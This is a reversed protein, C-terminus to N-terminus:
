CSMYSWTPRPTSTQHVVAREPDGGPGCDASVEQGSSLPAGRGRLVYAAASDGFVARPRTASHLWHSAPGHPSATGDPPAILNLM